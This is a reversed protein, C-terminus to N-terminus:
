PALPLSRLTRPSALIGQAERYRHELDAIYTKPLDPTSQRLLAEKTELVLRRRLYDEHRSLQAKFAQYAAKDRPKLRIQCPVCSVLFPSLSTAQSSALNVPHNLAPRRDVYAPRLVNSM